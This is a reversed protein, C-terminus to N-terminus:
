KCMKLNQGPFLLLFVPEANVVFTSKVDRMVNAFFELLIPAAILPPPLQM